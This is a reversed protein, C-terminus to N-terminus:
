MIDQIRHSWGEQRANEELYSYQFRPATIRHQWAPKGDIYVTFALRPTATTVMLYAVKHETPRYGLQDVRVQGHLPSPAATAWGVGLGFTAVPPM